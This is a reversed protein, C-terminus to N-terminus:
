NKVKRGILENFGFGERRIVSTTYVGLLIVAVGLLTRVQVAQVSQVSQVTDFNTLSVATPPPVDIVFTYTEPTPDLNGAMDIAAVTFTYVGNALGTIEHPSTCSSGGALTGDDVVCNFGDLGSLSDVGDFTFTVTDITNTQPPTSTLTTEPATRDIGVSGSGQLGNNGALDDCQGVRALSGEGLFTYSLDCNNSDIGSGGTETWNWTITVDSNFWGNANPTPDFTPASTPATKDLNVTATATASNGALDTCTVELNNVGETTVMTTTPCNSSDVGSGGIDTWNWTVTVDSNNWGNGNPAPAQTPAAIPAILDPDTTVVGSVVDEYPAVRQSCLADNCTGITSFPHASIDITGGSNTLPQDFVLSLGLVGTLDGGDQALTFAFQSSGPSEPHLFNFTVTGYNPSNTITIDYDSYIGTTADYKFSGTASAGSDFTVGELYWTRTTTVRGSTVFEFPSLLSSCTADRCRSVKSQPTISIDITGGANTLSTDFIFILRPLDTLDGTTTDLVLYGSQNPFNGANFTQTGYEPSDTFTIDFDSYTNTDADYKFSGTATAGTDFTVGELYWTLAASDATTPASQATDADTIGGFAFLSAFLLLLAGFRLVYRPTTM